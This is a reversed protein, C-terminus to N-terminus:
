PRQVPLKHKEGGPFSKGKREACSLRSEEPRLELTGEPLGKKVGWTLGENEEEKM